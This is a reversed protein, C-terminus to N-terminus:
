TGAMWTKAAASSPRPHGPCARGHRAEQALFLGPRSAPAEVRVQDTAALRAPRAAAAAAHVPQHLEPLALTRRYDGSEGCDRRGPLRLRLHLREEAAPYGLRHPGRVGA